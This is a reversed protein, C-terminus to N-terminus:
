DGMLSDVRSLSREAAGLADLREASQTLELIMAADVGAITREGTRHAGLHEALLSM